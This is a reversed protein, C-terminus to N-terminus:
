LSMKPSFLCEEGMVKQRWTKSLRQRFHMPPPKNIKCAIQCFKWSVRESLFYMLVKAHWGGRSFKGATIQFFIYYYYTSFLKFKTYIM